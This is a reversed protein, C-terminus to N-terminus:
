TMVTIIISGSVGFLRSRFATAMGQLPKTMDKILQVIVMQQSQPSIDPVSGSAPAPEKMSSESAQQDANQEPSGTAAPNETSSAAPKTLNHDLTVFIDAVSGITALLGVFTGLLGLLLLLGSIYSQIGRYRTLRQGVKSKFIKADNHSFVIRGTREINAIACRFNFNDIIANRRGMKDIYDVLDQRSPRKGDQTKFNDAERLLRTAQDVSLNQKIVVFTGILWTSWIIGNMYVNSAFSVAIFDFTTIIIFLAFLVVAVMWRFPPPVMMAKTNALSGSHRSIAELLSENTKNEAM